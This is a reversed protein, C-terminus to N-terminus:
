LMMVSVRTSSIVLLSDIRVALQFHDLMAAPREFVHTPSKIDATSKRSQNDSATTRPPANERSVSKSMGKPQQGTIAKELM